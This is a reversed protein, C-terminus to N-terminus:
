KDDGLLSAEKRLEHAVAEVMKAAKHAEDSLITGMGAEILTALEEFHEDGIDAIQEPTLMVKFREVINMAEKEIRKQM